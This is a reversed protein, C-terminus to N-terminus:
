GQDERVFDREGADYAVIMDADEEGINLAHHFVGAPIAVTEGAAQVVTRDGITHELRGRLLYLLEQCNRHGHHPNAKGPKIVVRGLTLNEANGIQRSALWELSGWDPM